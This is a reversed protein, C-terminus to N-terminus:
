KNESEWRDIYAYGDHTLVCGFYPLREAGTLERVKLDYKGLEDMDEIFQLFSPDFRQIERATEAEAFGWITAGDACGNMFDIHKQEMKVISTM